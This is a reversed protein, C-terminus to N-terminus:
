SRLIETERSSVLFNSSVMVPEKASTKAWKLAWAGLPSNTTVTSPTFEYDNTLSLGFKIISIRERMGIIATISRGAKSNQSAQYGM